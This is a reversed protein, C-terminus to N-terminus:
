SGTCGFLYINFVFCVFLVCILLQFYAWSCFVSLGRVLGTSLHLRPLLITTPHCTFTSYEVGDQPLDTRSFHQSRLWDSWQSKSSCLEGEEPVASSM